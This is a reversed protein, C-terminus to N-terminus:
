SVGWGVGSIYSLFEFFDSDRPIFGTIVFFRWHLYFCLRWFFPFPKYYDMTLELQGKARTLDALEKELNIQDIM